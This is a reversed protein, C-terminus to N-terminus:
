SRQCQGVHTRGGRRGHRRDTTRLEHRVVRGRPEVHATQRSRDSCRHDHLQVRDVGASASGSADGRDSRDRPAVVSSRHRSGPRRAALRTHPADRHVPGLLAVAEDVRQAARDELRQARVVLIGVDRHRDNAARTRRERRAVVEAAPVLALLHRVVRGAAFARPRAVDGFAPHADPIEGLGHDRLHVTVAERPRALERGPAIEDVHGLVRLHSIGATRNPTGSMCKWGQNRPMRLAISIISVPSEIEPMSAASSPHALAAYGASSSSARTRSTACRM